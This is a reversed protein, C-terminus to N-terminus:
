GEGPDTAVAGASGGESRLAVNEGEVAPNGLSARIVEAGLSVAVGRRIVQGHIVAAHCGQGAPRLSSPAYGQGGNKTVTEVGCRLTRAM